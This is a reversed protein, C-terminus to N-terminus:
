PRDPRQPGFNDQWFESFSKRYPRLRSPPMKARVTDTTLRHDQLSSYPGIWTEGTLQFQERRTQREKVGVAIFNGAHEGVLIYTKSGVEIVHFSAKTSAAYNGTFSAFLPGFFIVVLLVLGKDGYAEMMKGRVTKDEFKLEEGIEKMIFSGYNGGSKIEFYFSFLYFTLIALTILALSISWWSFGVACYALLALIGPVIWYRMAILSVAIRGTWLAPLGGVTNWSLLFVGIFGTASLLVKQTSVEVFVSDVSFYALYSKDFYYAFLYAFSSLILLWNAESFASSLRKLRNPEQDPKQTL